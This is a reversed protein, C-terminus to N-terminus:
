TSDILSEMSLKSFSVKLTELDDRSIKLLVKSLFEKQQRKMMEDDNQYSTANKMKLMKEVQKSLAIDIMKIINGKALLQEIKKAGREYANSLKEDNQCNAKSLCYEKVTNFFLLNEPENLLEDCSNPKVQDRRVADQLINTLKEEFRSMNLALLFRSVTKTNIEDDDDSKSYTKDTPRNYPKFRRPQQNRQMKSSRLDPEISAFSEDNFDDDSKPQPSRRHWLKSSQAREDDEDQSDQFQRLNEVRNPDNAELKLIFEDLFTKEDSTLDSYNKLLIKLDKDNLNELGKTDEIRKLEQHEKQKNIMAELDKFHAQDNNASNFFFQLLKEIQAPLVNEILKDNLTEALIVAINMKPETMPDASKNLKSKDIPKLSQLLTEIDKIAHKVRSITAPTVLSVSLVGKLKEKVTALASMQDDASNQGKIQMTDVQLQLDDVTGALLGLEPKLECLLRCVSGLTIPSDDSIEFLEGYIEKAPKKMINAM